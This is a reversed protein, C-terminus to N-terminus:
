LAAKLISIVSIPGKHLIMDFINLSQAGKKGKVVIEAMRRVSNGIREFFLLFATRKNSIRTKGTRDM